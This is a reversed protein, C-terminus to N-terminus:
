PCIFKERFVKESEKFVSSYSPDRMLFGNEKLFKVVYYRPRLRGELSYCVIAPQQAIYAPQLGVENILFESRRQLSEKARMLLAPAKSFAIGVEADSWRFAKKLHEVKAAIKEESLFAVAQLAHRFMPSRRPVSLGEACAVAARIRETSISLPSPRIVYLKAIDCVLYRQVNLVIKKCKKKYNDYKTKFVVGVCEDKTIKKEQLFTVNPKVVRELDSGLVSGSKLARLLNESSGFLPLCYHLGSIISRCRFTADALSVLRVIEPRSLGLGTLEAVNPALTKEVKACLLQPDKAVVAAVDADSLGLGALFALVADPDTPSKLHSLKRSPKLAQPRTLGRNAILYDEAAFGASPSIAPAVASVSLLRRLPSAPSTAPSSPLLHALISSRLRLM